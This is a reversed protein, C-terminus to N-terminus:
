IKRAGQDRVFQGLESRASHQKIRMLGPSTNIYMLPSRCGAEMFVQELRDFLVPRDPWRFKRAESQFANWQRRRGAHQALVEDQVRDCLFLACGLPRIQWRCGNEGLYICKDRFLPREIADFLDDIQQKDAHAVNIVMDAWFTVIGDKSCCASTRSRFCAQTCFAVLHRASFEDLQKRFAMYARVTDDRITALLGIHKEIQKLADIQEAQYDNM